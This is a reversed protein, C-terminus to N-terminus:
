FQFEPDDFPGTEEDKGPPDVELATLAHDGAQVGQQLRLLPVYLYLRYIDGGVSAGGAQKRYM